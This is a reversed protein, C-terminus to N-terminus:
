NWSRKMRCFRMVDPNAAACVMRRMDLKITGVKEEFIVVDMGQARESKLFTKLSSECISWARGQRDFTVTPDTFQIGNRQLDSPSAVLFPEPVRTWRAQFVVNCLASSPPPPLLENM